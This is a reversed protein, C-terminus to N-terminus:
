AYFAGFYTDLDGYSNNVISEALGVQYYLGSLTSTSTTKVGVIMDLGNPAGGFAFSGDPSFYFYKQGYILSGNSPFTAVAAGNSFIYPLGSTTQWYAQSSGNSYGRITGANLHGNGDPNATFVMNMMYQVALGGSINPDFDSFTWSGTFSSATPAPSALKAAIFMDNYGHANDTSSGVFIGNASVLGLVSDGPVLPNPSSISGYGAGGIV